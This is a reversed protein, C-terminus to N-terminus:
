VLLQVVGAMPLQQLVIKDDGVIAVHGSNPGANNTFCDFRGGVHYGILSALVGKGTSGYQGDFMVYNGPGADTWQHLHKM